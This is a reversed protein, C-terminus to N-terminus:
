FTPLYGFVLSMLAFMIPITIICLTHSIMTMSAGTSPDGGYAEPFVITNMGLPTATMVLILFLVDNSINLGFILNVLEKLGFLVAIIISPIILLRLLSAVYVKKNTLMNKVNFRAITIGAILMAVPGMCSALSDIADTLFWSKSYILGGLGTIGVVLAILLSITPFNILNKLPHTKKEGAPILISIGWTYIIINFPLCAIKYYALGTEGFIALVVPDGMYGINAIALAYLFVNRQYNKKDKVFFRVLLYSIALAVMVAVITIVINIAHTTLTKLNFVKFLSSFTLCPVFLYTELKALVKASNEPLLKLKYLLFGLVIFLFLMLMPFLTALFTQIM